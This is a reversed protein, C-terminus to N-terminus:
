DILDLYIAKLKNYTTKTIKGSGNCHECVQGCGGTFLKIGSKNFCMPCDVKSAKINKM